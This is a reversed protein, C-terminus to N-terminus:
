LLQQRGLRRVAENQASIKGVRDLDLVMDAGAAGALEVTRDESGDSAVIVESPYDLELLNAVRGAIVAEEDHAAVIVSVSPPASTSGAATASADVRAPILRALLWLVAPYGVQTFVLLGVTAWFAIEVAIM